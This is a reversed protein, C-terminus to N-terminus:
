TTQSGNCDPETSREPLLSRTHIPYIYQTYINPMYIPYIYQTYTNPICTPYVHQTYTNPIHIPYIYQTYTNPIHIPHGDQSVNALLQCKTKREMMFGLVAKAADSSDEVPPHLAKCYGATMFLFFPQLFNLEQAPNMRVLVQQHRTNRALTPPQYSARFRGAAIARKLSEGSVVPPVGVIECWKNLTQIYPQRCLQHLSGKKRLIEGGGKRTEGLGLLGRDTGRGTWNAMQPAWGDEASKPRGVGAIAV